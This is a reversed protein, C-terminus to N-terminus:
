LDIEIGVPAHDSGLVYDLIFASKLKSVLNNSLFFYDIRWGINRDRARSKVDWWSYKDIKGPYLYRFSDTYGNAILADIWAREEQRFGARGDNEKPRALDIEEHAVNLDGCLIIKKNIKKNSNMINLVADNFELKYNLREERGTMPFYCNIIIFNNYEVIIVRGENDFKNIGIGKYIKVPKKKSFLAVGSYGKKIKSSEFVSTYGIINKLEDPLVDESAKTEQICLIDPSNDYLWGLFGKKYLSRIGNVNWSIIRM